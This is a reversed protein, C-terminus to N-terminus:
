DYLKEVISYIGRERHKRDEIDEYIVQKESDTLLERMTKIKKQKSLEEFQWMFDRYNNYLDDWIMNYDRLEQMFEEATLKGLLYLRIYFYM